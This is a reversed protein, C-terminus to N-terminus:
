SGHFQFRKDREIKPILAMFVSNAETNAVSFADELEDVTSGSPRVITTELRLAQTKQENEVVVATSMAVQLSNGERDDRFRMLVNPADTKTLSLIDRLSPFMKGLDEKDEWHRQEVFHDIKGLEISVPKPAKGFESRCFESFVEFEKLVRVKLGDETSFRPYTGDRLRWNLYFRDHQIQIVFSGNGGSVFWTRLPPHGTGFRVGPLSVAERIERGPYESRRDQWYTGLLVPDIGQLSEFYVGCVVEVVPPNKLKELGLSESM